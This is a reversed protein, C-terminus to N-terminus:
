GVQELKRSMPTLIELGDKTMLLTDILGCGPASDWNETYADYQNEFNMVLRPDLPPPPIDERPRPRHRGVWDPPIAIGLTYGGILWQYRALDNEEAFAQGIEHFKVMSDGPRIERVFLDMMPENREYLDIWRQDVDGFAFSRCINVHYRHLSACFDIHIIDGKQFERHSPPEHHSGARPGGGIMTRIGPYGGGHRMMDSVIIAELETERMGEQISDRALEMAGTAISAAERMVEIELPSKIVRVDEILDSGDAIEAGQEEWIAGIKRVHNPHPGYCRPQIAIKGKAWGRGIVEGAIVPIQDAVKGRDFICVDTIEPYISVLLVHGDNDFFVHGDGDAPLFCSCLTDLSYWIQDYGFLYTLDAPSTVFIGSIGNETLAHRVKNQRSVYEEHPFPQKWDVQDRTEQHM